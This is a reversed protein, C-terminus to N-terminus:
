SCGKHIPPARIRCPRTRRAVRQWNIPPDTCTGVDSESNTSTSRRSSGRTCRMARNSVPLASAASSTTASAIARDRGRHRAPPISSPGAYRRRTTTSGTSVGIACAHGRSAARDGRARSTPTLRRIEFRRDALTVSCESGHHPQRHSPSGDHHQPEVVVEGFSPDGLHEADARAGHLRLQRPRQLLEAGVEPSLVLCTPIPIGIRDFRSKTLMQGGDVPRRHDPDVRERGRRLTGLDAQPTPATGTHRDRRDPEHRHRRQHDPRVARTTRDSRGRRRPSSPASPSPVEHRRRLGAARRRRRSWNWSRSTSSRAPASCRSQSRARDAHFPTRGTPPTSRSRPVRRRRRRRRAALGIRGRGGVVGDGVAPPREGVRGGTRTADVREDGPGAGVHQHDAAVVGVATQQHREALGVVRGGVHPSTM